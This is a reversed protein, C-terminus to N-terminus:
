RRACRRSAPTRERASRRRCVSRLYGTLSPGYDRELATKALPRAVGRSQNLAVVVPADGAYSRILQELRDTADRETGDTRQEWCPPYLCRRSLFFEHMAHLVHQGGFDWMRAVM